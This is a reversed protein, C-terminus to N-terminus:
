SLSIQSKIFLIRAVDTTYLQPIVIAVTWVSKRPVIGLLQQQSPLILKLQTM